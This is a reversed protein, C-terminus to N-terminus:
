RGFIRRLGEPVAIASWWRAAGVRERIASRARTLDEGVAPIEDSGGYRAREAQAGLPTLADGALGLERTWRAAQARESVTPEPRHGLGSALERLEDWAALAGGRGGGSAAALRSRWRLERLVGPLALVALAALGILVWRLLDVRGSGGGAATGDAAEEPAATETPTAGSPLEDAAETPATTPAPQNPDIQDSPVYPLPVAREGIPTPDFAVWGVEGFYAEVWAHADNTTIAYSEDAQKTGHTYGVVVRAPVESIRFMGAMASAYQECFGRRKQLFSALPDMGEPSPVQLSYTFGSAPDSFFADLAVAVEWPSEADGTIQETLEVVSPDVDTPVVLDRQVESPLGQLDPSVDALEDSTPRPIQATVEYVQEEVQGKSDTFAVQMAEDFRTGPLSISTPSYFAPVFVDSYKEVTISATATSTAAPAAGQPISTPDIGSDKTNTFSWGKEGWSELVVTRLYFPAPDDTKVNFLPLPDQRSLQGILDTSRAVTENPTRDKNGSVAFVGGDPLRVVVTAAAAVAIAVAAIAGSSLLGGLGSGIGRRGEDLEAVWLLLLFLVAPVAVLWMAIPHRVIASCIAFLTLLPIGALAPRGTVACDDVLVAVPVVLLALLAGTGATPPIPAVKTRATHAGEGILALLQSFTEGGPIFGAIMTPQCTLLLIGYLGLVLQVISVYAQPIGVARLAIGSLVVIAVVIASTVLWGQHSFVPGITALAAITALGAIVPAAYLTLAGPRTSM